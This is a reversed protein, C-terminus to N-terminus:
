PMAICLWLGALLPAASVPRSVCVSGLSTKQDVAAVDSSSNLLHRSLRAVAWVEM